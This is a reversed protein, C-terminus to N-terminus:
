ALERLKAYQQDSFQQYQQYRNVSITLTKIWQNSHCLKESSMCTVSKPRFAVGSLVDNEPPCSTPTFAIAGWNFHRAELITEKSNMEVERPKYSVMNRSLLYCLHCQAARREILTRTDYFEIGLISAARSRSCIDLCRFCLSSLPAAGHHQQQFDSAAAVGEPIDCNHSEKRERKSM